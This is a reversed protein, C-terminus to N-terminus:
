AKLRAELAELEERLESPLADGFRAYHEQMQPLQEAWEDPEVELLKRMM